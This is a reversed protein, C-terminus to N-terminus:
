ASRRPEAARWQVRGAQDVRAISALRRLEVHTRHVRVIHAGASVLAKVTSEAAPSTPEFRTLECRLSRPTSM